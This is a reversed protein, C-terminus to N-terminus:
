IRSGLSKERGLNHDSMEATSLQHEEFSKGIRASLSQVFEQNCECLNEQTTPKKCTDCITPCICKGKYVHCTDCYDLGHSKKPISDGQLNASLNQVSINNEETVSHRGNEMLKGQDGVPLSGFNCAFKIEDM